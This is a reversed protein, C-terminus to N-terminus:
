NKQTMKMNLKRDNISNYDERLFAKGCDDSQVQNNKEDDVSVRVPELPM